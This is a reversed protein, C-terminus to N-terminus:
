KEFGIPRVHNNGGDEFEDISESPIEFGIASTCGSGNIRDAIEETEQQDQAMTYQLKSVKSAIATQAWASLSDVLPIVAMYFLM